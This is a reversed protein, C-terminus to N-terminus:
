PPAVWCEQPLEAVDRLLTQCVRFGDFSIEHETLVGGIGIEFFWMKRDSKDCTELQVFYGDKDGFDWKADKNNWVTPYGMLSKRVIVLIAHAITVVGNQRLFTVCQNHNEPNEFASHIAVGSGEDGWEDDKRGPLVIAIPAAFQHRLKPDKLGDIEAKAFAHVRQTSYRVLNGQMMRGMAGELEEKSSSEGGESVPEQELFVEGKAEAEAKAKKYAAMHEVEAKARAEKDAAERAKNAEAEASKKALADAKKKEARIQLEVDRLAKEKALKAAKADSLSKAEAAQRESAELTAKALAKGEETQGFTREKLQKACEALKPAVLQNSPDLEAAKTFAAIAEEERELGMLAQGRRFHSKPFEPNLAIAEDCAKLAQKFKHGTGLLAAALNSFLVHNSPDVKTAKAYIGAAKLTEGKKFLANGEEKMKLAKAQISESPDTGM